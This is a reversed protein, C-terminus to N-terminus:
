KFWAEWFCWVITGLLFVIVIRDTITYTLQKPIRLYDDQKM